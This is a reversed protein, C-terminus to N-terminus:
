WYQIKHVEVNGTGLESKNIYYLPYDTYNDNLLLKDATEAIIMTYTPWRENSPYTLAVIDVLEYEWNYFYLNRDSTDSFSESALVIGDPLPVLDYTGSLGTQVLIEETYTAYDLRCIAGDKYYYGETKDYYGGHDPKKALYTVEDKEIDYSGIGDEGDPGTSLLYLNDGCYYFPTRFRHRPEGMSGDVKYSYAELEETTLSSSFSDSSVEVWHLTSFFYTGDQFGFGRIMDGGHEKSFELLDLVVKHDSGDPNMRILKSNTESGEGTAAYLYGDYFTITSGDPVYANCDANSHTCDPRGCLKIFIDSGNDVYMIYNDKIFYLGTPSVAPKIMTLGYRLTGIRNDPVPSEGVGWEGLEAPDLPIISNTPDTSNTPNTNQTNAQSYDISCGSLLFFVLLIAFIRIAKM